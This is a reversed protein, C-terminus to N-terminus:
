PVPPSPQLLPTLELKGYPQTPANAGVALFMVRNAPEFIMSQLSIKGQAVHMLMDQVGEVDIKGFNHKSTDCLYDFRSCRGPKNMDLGRHHNTSVLAADLPARRVVIEHPMIECVARDGAADMLMLNNATQRPTNKLLVVAQEVNKCQELVTRYLLMCPMGTPPRMMRDVEMNCLTLGHQNMGSLVGIMGPWTVSAFAYKDRPKFILLVSEKEAVGFGPFDLNRGLRAVGDPSAGGPVAVTSCAVMPVADLFCNSLLIEGPSMGCQRALARMEDLHEPAIHKEFGAAMRMALKKGGDGRFFKALYSRHMQKITPGLQQGHSMGIAASDGLLQVVPTPFAPGTAPAIADSPGGGQAATSCVLM